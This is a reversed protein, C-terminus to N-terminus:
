RCTEWHASSLAMACHEPACMRTFCHVIRHLLSTIARTRPCYLRKKKKNPIARARRVAERHASSSLQFQTPIWILMHPWIRQEPIHSKMPLNIGPTRATHNSNCVCKQPSHTVNVSDGVSQASTRASQVRAASLAVRRKHANHARHVRRM